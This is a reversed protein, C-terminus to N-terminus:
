RKIKIDSEDYWTKDVGGGDNWFVQYQEKGINRDKKVKVVVGFLWSLPDGIPSTGNWISCPDGLQLAM